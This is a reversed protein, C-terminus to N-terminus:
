GYTPWSRTNVDKYYRRVGGAETVELGFVSYYKRWIAM